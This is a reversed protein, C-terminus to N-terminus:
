PRDSGLRFLQVGGEGARRRAATSPRVERLLGRVGENAWGLSIQALRLHM